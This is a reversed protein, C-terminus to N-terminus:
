SLAPLGSLDAEGAQQLEAVKGTLATVVGVVDSVRSDVSGIRSSLEAIQEGQQTARAELAALQQIIPTPDFANMQAVQETLTRLADRLAIHSQALAALYQVLQQNM